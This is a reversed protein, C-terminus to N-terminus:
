CEKGELGKLREVMRKAGIADTQQRIRAILRNYPGSFLESHVWLRVGAFKIHIHVRSPDICMSLKENVWDGLSQQSWDEPNEELSKSIRQLLVTTDDEPEDQEPEQKKKGFLWGFM